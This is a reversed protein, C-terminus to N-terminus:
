IKERRGDPWVRYGNFVSPLASADFAEPRYVAPAKEAATMARRPKSPQPANLFPAPTPNITM